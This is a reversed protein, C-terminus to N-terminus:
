RFEGTWAFVAGIFPAAKRTSCLLNSSRVGVSGTNHAVLQALAGRVSSLKGCFESNTFGKKSIKRQKLRFFSEWTGNVEQKNVISGAKGIIHNYQGISDLRDGFSGAM